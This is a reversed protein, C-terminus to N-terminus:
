QEGGSLSRIPTISEVRGGIIRVLNFQFNPFWTAAAKLKVMAREWTHKGKVEDFRTSGDWLEVFFDPTYRVGDALVLTIAEYRWRKIDGARQLSTLRDAYAREGKSKFRPGSDSAPTASATRAAKRPAARDESGAIRVVRGDVVDLGQERLEARTFTATM